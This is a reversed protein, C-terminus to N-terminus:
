AEVETATSNAQGPRRRAVIPVRKSPVKKAGLRSPDLGSWPRGNNFYNTRALLTVVPKTFTFVIIVDIITTLGLTFAFDKVDSVSVMYLVAAALFSVFDASLITRRARGWGHQIATRLTRGDRIEDRLREFFVVFSDATIGIAVILGAIGSIDLTFQILQGLLVASAYTVGAALILSFVSVVALLRYYMLVYIMVLFLGIGGAILGGVLQNGGLTASVLTVDSKAFSLPLAGYKLVNALNQADTQSFNGTIQANGGTIPGENIAPASEVLGDLVIAFQGQSSSLATTANAFDKTGQKNFSLDVEWQGTTVQNSGSGTTVPAAVVTTVDKGSVESPGLLYKYKVATKGAGEAREDCTVLYSSPAVNGVNALQTSKSCDLANYANTVSAPVSGAAAAGESAPVSTSTAAPTTAATSGAPTANSTSGAPTSTAATKTIVDSLRAQHTSGADGAAAPSTSSNSSPSSSASSGSSPSASSGGTSSSSSSPSASGSSSATPTPSTTPASTSATGAGTSPESQIVPRFTLQATQGIQNVLAQSNKGPIEITINRSGQKAIQATSVGQADVRDRLINIAQNIDASSVKGHSGPAPNATLTVSTGGALDIGLKPKYHGTGFMTAYM